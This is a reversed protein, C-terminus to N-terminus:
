YGVRPHWPTMNSNRESLWVYDWDAIIQRNQIDVTQIMRRSRQDASDVLTCGAFLTVALLLVMLICLKKM